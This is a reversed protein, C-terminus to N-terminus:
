NSLWADYKKGESKSGESPGPTPTETSSGLEAETPYNISPQPMTPASSSLASPASAVSPESSASVPPVSGQATQAADTPPTSVNASNASNTNNAGNTGNTASASPATWTKMAGTLDFGQLTSSFENQIKKLEQFDMGAERFEKQVGRSAEEWMARLQAIIRGAQYAYEVMKKPGFLVLSLILVIAIQPLGIGLINFNM